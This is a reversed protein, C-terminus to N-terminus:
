PEGGAAADVAKTLRDQERTIWDGDPYNRLLAEIFEVPNDGVVDRIPTGDAASQEFLDAVNEFISIASEADGPGFRMLYREFAEVAARYNAPLKASRAKYDRWRRKDGIMKSAIKSISM